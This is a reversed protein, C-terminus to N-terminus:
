LYTYTVKHLPQHQMDWEIMNKTFNYGWNHSYSFLLLSFLSWFISNLAANDVCFTCMSLSSSIKFNNWINNKLYLDLKHWLLLVSINPNIALTACSSGHTVHEFEAAWGCHVLVWWQVMWQIGTIVWDHIFRL